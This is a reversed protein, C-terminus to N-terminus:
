SRRRKERVARASWRLSKRARGPGAWSADVTFRRALEERLLRSVQIRSSAGGTAHTRRLVDHTLEADVENEMLLTLFESLESTPVADGGNM